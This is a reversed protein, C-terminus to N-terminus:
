NIVISGTPKALVQLNQMFVLQAAPNECVVFEISEYV